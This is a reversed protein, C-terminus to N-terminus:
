LSPTSTPEMSAELDLKKECDFPSMEEIAKEFPVMATNIVHIVVGGEIKLDSQVIKANPTTPAEDVIEGSGFSLIPLYISTSFLRPLGSSFHFFPHQGQVIHYGLMLKLLEMNSLMAGNIMMGKKTMNTLSKFVEEEDEPDGRYVGLYHAMRTFAKDNPLLLTVDNADVLVNELSTYRLLATFIDFNEDEDDFKTKNSPLVLQWPVAVPPSKTKNGCILAPIMQACGSDGIMTCNNRVKMASEGIALSILDVRNDCKRSTVDDSLKELLDSALDRYKFISNKEIKMMTDNGIKSGNNLSTSTISYGAVLKTRNNETHLRLIATCNLGDECNETDKMAMPPTQAVTLVAKMLLMSIIPAVWKMTNNSIQLQKSKFRTSFTARRINNFSTM